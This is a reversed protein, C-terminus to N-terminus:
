AFAPAASAKRIEDDLDAEMEDFFAEGDSVLGLQASRVGTAIRMRIEANMRDRQEM